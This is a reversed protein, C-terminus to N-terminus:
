SYRSSGFSFSILRPSMMDDIFDILLWISFMMLGSPDRFFGARLQLSRFNQWGSSLLPINPKLKWWFDQDLLNLLDQPAKKKEKHSYQQRQTNLHLSRRNFIQTKKKLTMIFIIFSIIIEFKLKSHMQVTYVSVEVENRVHKYTFM